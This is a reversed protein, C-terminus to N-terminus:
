PLRSSNAAAIKNVPLSFSDLIRGFMMPLWSRWQEVTVAPAHKAARSFIHFWLNDWEACHDVWGWVSAWTDIWPLQSTTPALFTCLLAASSFMDRSHMFDLEKTVEEVMAPVAAPDFYRRLATILSVFTTRHVQCSMASSRASFHVKGRLFDRRFKDYLPRWDITLQTPPEHYVGHHALTTM